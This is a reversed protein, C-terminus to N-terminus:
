FPLCPRRIEGFLIFVSLHIIIIGGSIQALTKSCETVAGQSQGSEINTFIGHRCRVTKKEIGCNDACMHVGRRFVGPYIGAFPSKEFTGPFAAMTGM